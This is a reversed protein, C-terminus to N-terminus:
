LLGRASSHARSSSSSPPSHHRRPASSNTQTLSQHGRSGCLRSNEGHRGGEGCGGFCQQAFLDGTTLKARHIEGHFGRNLRHKPERWGPAQIGARHLGEADRVVHAPRPIAASAPMFATTKLGRATPDSNSDAREFCLFHWANLAGVSQAVRAAGAMIQGFAAEGGGGGVGRRRGVCLGM